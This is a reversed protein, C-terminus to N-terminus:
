ASFKGFYTNLVAILENVTTVNAISEKAEGAANWITDVTDTFEGQFTNLASADAKTALTSEATTLRGNIGEVVSSEAKTAVAAQLADIDGEADSLRSDLSGTIDQFIESTVCKGVEQYLDGLRSDLDDIRGTINPVVDSELTSIQGGLTQFQEDCYAQNTDVKESLENVATLDAKLALGETLASADAKNAIDAQLADIEGEATALRGDVANLATLDAKLALGDTLAGADAKKAIDAQLADIEGEATTVRGALATLDASAAKTAIDAQLADIEGEATTLRDDVANLAGISAKTAVEAELQGIRSADGLREWKLAGDVTAYVYESYESYGEPKWLVVNGETFTSIGEVTAGVTLPDTSSIGVFKLLKTVGGVVANNVLEEVGTATYISASLPMEGFKFLESM